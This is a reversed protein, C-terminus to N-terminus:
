PHAGSAMSPSCTFRVEVRKDAPSLGSVATPRSQQITSILPQPLTALTVEIEAAPNRRIHVACRKRLVLLTCGSKALSEFIGGTM